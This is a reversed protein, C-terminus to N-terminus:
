RFKKYTLSDWRYSGPKCMLLVGHYKDELSGFLPPHPVSLGSSCYGLQHKLVPATFYQNQEDIDIHEDSEGTDNSLEQVRNSLGNEWITQPAGFIAISFNEDYKDRPLTRPQHGCFETAEESVCDIDGQAKLEIGDPSGQCPKKRPKKPKGIKFKFQRSPTSTASSAKSSTGADPVAEGSASPPSVPPKIGGPVKSSRRSNGTTWTLDLAYGGCLIGRHLCTGCRPRQRDCTRRYQSCTHCDTKARGLSNTRPAAPLNPSSLMVHGVVSMPTWSWRDRSARVTIVERASDLRM